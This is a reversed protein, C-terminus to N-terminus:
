EITCSNKANSSNELKTAIKRPLNAVNHQQLHCLALGRPVPCVTKGKLKKRNLQELLELKNWWKYEDLYKQQKYIM